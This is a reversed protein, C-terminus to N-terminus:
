EALSGLIIENVKKDKFFFILGFYMDGIVISEQNSEEKNVYKSYVKFVDEYNSGIGINFKNKLNSKTGIEIQEVVYNKSSDNLIIKLDKKLYFIDKGNYGNVENFYSTDKAAIGLNKIIESEAIGLNLWNDFIENEFKFNELEDNSIHKIEQVEITSTNIILESENNEQNAKEKCGILLAIFILLLIRKM